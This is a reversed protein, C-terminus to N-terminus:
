ASVVRRRRQASASRKASIRLRSWWRLGLSRLNPRVRADYLRAMPRTMMCWSSHSRLRLRM